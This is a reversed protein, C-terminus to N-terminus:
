VEDPVDYARQYKRFYRREALENEGVNYHHTGFKERPKGALYEKMQTRALETLSMEFHQYIREICGIPDDMLDQFRVDHFANEPFIGTDRQHMVRYLQPEYYAPGFALKLLEPDLREARMWIIAAILSVTSGMVQLPGRHAQM